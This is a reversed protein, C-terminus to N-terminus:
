LISKFLENRSISYISKCFLKFTNSLYNKISPKYNISFIFYIWNINLEIEMIFFIFTDSLRLHIM